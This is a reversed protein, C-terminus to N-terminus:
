GGTHQFHTGAPVMDMGDPVNLYGNSTGKVGKHGYQWVIKKTRPDIVVVRNNWDDCVLLNGNSLPM